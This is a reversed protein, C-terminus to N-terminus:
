AHKAEKIRVETRTSEGAHIIQTATRSLRGNLEPPARRATRFPFPANGDQYSPPSTRFDITIKCPVESQSKGVNCSLGSRNRISAERM